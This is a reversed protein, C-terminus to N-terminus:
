GSVDLKGGLTSEPDLMYKGGDLKKKNLEMIGVVPSKVNSTVM